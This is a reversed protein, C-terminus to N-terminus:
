SDNWKKELSQYIEPRKIVQKIVRELTNTLAGSFERSQDSGYQHDLEHLYTALANHYPATITEKAMWVFTEKYQGMIINKESEQSFVWIMKPSQGLHRASDYLIEMKQRDKPSPEIRYHEQLARFKESTTIMGIMSLESNCIVYGQAKLAREYNLGNLCQALYKQDFTFRVKDLSMKEAIAELILPGIQKGYDSSETWIPELAYLASELEKRNASGVLLGIIKELERRTVVGRDRDKKLGSNKWKWISVFEVNNWREEELHRRQGAFYFNGTPIRDKSLKKQPSPPGLFKFGGVGKVDLVPNAFDPNNSHYFLDRAEVFAQAYKKNSVQLEVFNGSIAERKKSCEAFLGKKREVYDDEPIKDMLFDVVWDQSGFRVRSFGYDRLLVLALIKAGEGMGGASLFNDTKTTAGLHLLQRFDYSGNGQIRVVYSQLGETKIKVEVGDLTQKNSDFFNQLTDRAAKELDWNVGYSELIGLYRKQFVVPNDEHQSSDYNADADDLRSELTREKKRLLWETFM